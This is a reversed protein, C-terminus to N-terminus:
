KRSKVEEVRTDVEFYRYKNYTQSMHYFEVRRHLAEITPMRATTYTTADAEGGSNPLRITREVIRKDFVYSESFGASSPFHLGKREELYWHVVKLDLKASMGRATAELAASGAVGRPDMEIKLVAGNDVDVWAKGRALPGEGPKRPMVEIVACPRKKLRETDLLKFRYNKRNHEGLLTVPLFVSYHAKFRTELNADALDVQKHGRKILRRQEEVEGKDAVVQYDYHWRNEEPEVRKSLPNRQLVKEEVVETCTFRFAAKRLGACYAAAKDLLTRLRPDMPEEPEPEPAAISARTYGRATNGSLRDRVVVTLIYDGSEPFNVGLEVAASELAPRLVKEFILPKGDPTESRVTVHVDGAIEGGEGTERLYDSVFFRLVGESWVPESLKLPRIERPQLKRAYVVKVGPRSVQIKLKPKGMEPAKPKYTLVYYIDPRAAAKELALKLRTTDQVAGGTDAAIGRFSSEWSSFVPLWRLKDSDKLMGSEGGADSLFLHFTAGAGIFLSRLDRVQASMDSSMRIKGDCEDLFRKLEELTAFKMPTHTLLTSQVDVLPLRENQMFVLAWKEGDVARLGAALRQLMGPQARLCRLRYSELASRYNGKFQNLLVEEPIKVSKKASNQLMATHFDEAARHLDRAAGTKDILKQKLEAQLRSFFDAVIEKENEVDKLLIARRDGALVVHDGPRFIHKLFYDWAQPWDKSAENWWLLFLFLRPRQRAAAEGSEAAPTEAPALARREMRCSTIIVSEGNESLTFDKRMLGSVPEGGDFVRVVVERNVVQVREVVEEQGPLVSLILAVGFVTSIFRIMRKRM